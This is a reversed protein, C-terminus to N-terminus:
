SLFIIQHINAHADHSSYFTSMSIITQIFYAPIITLAILILIIKIILAYPTLNQQIQSLEISTNPFFYLIIIREILLFYCSALLITVIIKYQKM